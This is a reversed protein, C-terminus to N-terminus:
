DDSLGAEQFTLFLRDLAAHRRNRDQEFELLSDRELLYEGNELRSVVLGANLLEDIYGEPVDLIQAAQAVTLEPVVPFLGIGQGDTTLFPMTTLSMNQEM